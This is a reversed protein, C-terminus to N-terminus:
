FRRLHFIIIWLLILLLYRQELQHILIFINKLTMRPNNQIILASERFHRVSIEQTFEKNIRVNKVM